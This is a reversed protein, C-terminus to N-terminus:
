DDCIWPYGNWILEMQEQGKRNDGTNRHLHMQMTLMVVRYRAGLGWMGMMLWGNWLQISLISSLNGAEM